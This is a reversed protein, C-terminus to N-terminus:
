YPIATGEIFNKPYSHKIRMVEKILKELENNDIHSPDFVNAEVYDLKTNWNQIKNFYIRDFNYTKALKIFSFIEKFNNKQLVVHMRLLFKKQIKKIFELNKIMTDFKGGLRLNEYTAASAGDISLNLVKLKDFMTKNKDYMKKILLGNTQVSYRINDFNKTKRIFYRYILSAFPDGDSGVHVDITEKSSSIYDIIRDALRIRSDFKSGSKEFIKKNRCSPCQLNCSDDIALRITKIKPEPIKKKFHLEQTEQALIYSCNKEDCYRYSGDIISNQLHLAMPSDIIDKLSQLNLNGVSQPLWATCDCAFCSGNKDILITDFPRPCFTKLGLNKNTDIGYWDFLRKNIM